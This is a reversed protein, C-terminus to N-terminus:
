SKKLYLSRRYIVDFLGSSAKKKFGFDEFDEETVEADEAQSLLAANSHSFSSSIREPSVGSQYAYPTITSSRILCQTPKSPKMFNRDSILANECDELLDPRHLFNSTRLNSQDENPRRKESQRNEETEMHVNECSSVTELITEMKRLQLEKTNNCASYSSMSFSGRRETDAKCYSLMSDLEADLM